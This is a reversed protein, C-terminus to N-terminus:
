ARKRSFWRKRKGEDRSSTSAPRTESDAAAVEDVKADAPEASQTRCHGEFWASNQMVVTPSTLNGVVRASERLEIRNAAIIDGKVQGSVVVSRATIQANIVASNGIALTDESRIEGEVQGDIQAFTDFHLVGKIRSGAAVYERTGMPSPPTAKASSLIRTPAAQGDIAAAPPLILPRSPAPSPEPLMATDASRLAATGSVNSHFISM